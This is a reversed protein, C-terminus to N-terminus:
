EGISRRLTAIAALADYLAQVQQARAQVVAAEADALEISTALGVHYRENSLDLNERAQRVILDALEMRERATALDSCATVVDARLQEERDALRARAARLQAM